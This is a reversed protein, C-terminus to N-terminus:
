EKRLEVACCGLDIKDQEDSLHKVVMSHLEYYVHKGERRELVLAAHRLLSLHHSIAPQEVHLEEVLQSVNKEGGILHRLIRLRTPDAMAKLVKACEYSNLFDSSQKLLMLFRQVWQAHM